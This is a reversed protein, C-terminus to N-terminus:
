ALCHWNGSELRGCPERAAADEWGFDDEMTIALCSVPFLRDNTMARKHVQRVCARANRPAFALENSDRSKGSPSFQGVAPGGVMAAQVGSVSSGNRMIVVNKRMIALM